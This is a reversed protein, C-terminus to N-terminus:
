NDANYEGKMKNEFREAARADLGKLKRIARSIFRTGKVKSTGYNRINAIKQYPTGDPHNGDFTISWGYWKDRDTIERKKLSGKMRGSKSDSGAEVAKYLEEADIDIQEKVSQEALASKDILTELYDNLEKSIGDNWM